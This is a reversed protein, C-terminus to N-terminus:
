ARTAPDPLVRKAANIRYLVEFRVEYLLVATADQVCDNESIFYVFKM